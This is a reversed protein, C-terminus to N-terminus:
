RRQGIQDKPSLHELVILWLKDTSGLKAPGALRVTQDSIKQSSCRTAQRWSLGGVQNGGM